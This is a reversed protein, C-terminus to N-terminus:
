EVPLAMRMAEAMKKPVDTNDYCGSFRYAGAGLARVHVPLPTHSGTGFGIGARQAVIQSVVLPLPDSRGYLPHPKMTSLDVGRLSMSADYAEELRTKQANSMEEYDLGFVERISKKLLNPIDDAPSEWGQWRKFPAYMEFNFAQWSQKQAALSAIGLLSKAGGGGLTMGGTEHDATIVILTELPHQRYFRVAREIAADFSRVEEILVRADSGHAAHDIKGGEVMMFFGDPNDLLEIGKTTLDTLTPRYAPRDLEYPMRAQFFVRQGPRCAMLEDRTGIVKLGNKAAAELLANGEPQDAEALRGGAFYDFPSAALQLGIKHQESRADQHAYFVAPTADDISTSSVIGVKLGGAKAVTALSTYDKEDDADMSITGNSTKHGTALATGAAASDTTQQDASYTTAQGLVPFSSMTLREVGPKRKGLLPQKLAALYIEAIHEHAPGMGDGIFLFVYKARNDQPAAAQSDVPQFAAPQGCGALLGVAMAAVMVGLTMKMRGNM